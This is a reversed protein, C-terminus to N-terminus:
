LRGDRQGAQGRAGLRFPANESHQQRPAPDPPKNRKKSSFYEQWSAPDPFAGHYIKGAGASWYGHKTFHQPLTAAGPMAPRWPQSNHYVGSTSPLIGTMLSARSPNCAPAACYARTFLMGRKALQDLNPTRAQPHGGLCGIWDNLDDIAIFLVNPKAAQLSATWCAILVALLTRKLTM